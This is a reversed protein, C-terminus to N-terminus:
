AWREDVVLPAPYDSPPQALLWPKFRSHPPLAALEPLWHALYKGEPDHRQAQGVVNFWRERSDTGTGAQYAWNGWNSAVDYDVLCYEFWAAGARWDQQLDKVLFSALNQRARNSTYGTAILERMAADILPVGSRGARWADLRDADPRSVPPREALGAPQFLASGTADMLWRFYERWLLEFRVWYTSENAEVEREFREVEAWARRASLCGHALWPSLRTSDDFDALGDRTQKYSSVRRSEFLYYQLRQRGATEGGRFLASAESGTPVDPFLADLDTPPPPLASPPALPADPGAAREVKGRFRSFSMPWHEVAFPVTDFLRNDRALKLECRDPLARALRALAAREESGPQTHTWVATAGHRRALAALGDVPDQRLWLLRQGRARLALDLDAASAYRFSRRHAGIRAHGYGSSDSEAPDDFAVVILRSCAQAADCLLPQDDLRLGDRLWAIVVSM